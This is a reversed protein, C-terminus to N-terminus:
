CCGEIGVAGQILAPIVDCCEECLTCLMCKHRVEAAWKSSYDVSWDADKAAELGAISQPCSETGAAQATVSLKVWAIAPRRSYSSSSMDNSVMTPLALYIQGGVLVAQLTVHFTVFLLLAYCINCHSHIAPESHQQRHHARGCLNMQAFLM